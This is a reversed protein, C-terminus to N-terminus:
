GNGAAHSVLMRGLNDIRDASVGGRGLLMMHVGEHGHGVAYSLPTRGLNDRMDPNVQARGLLIGVVGEHGYGATYSLPTQGQDNPKGPDVGEWGVLMKVVEEHGNRAASALPSDGFYQGRNTDCGRIKILAVVIEVIGFFSTYYVGSISRSVTWSLLDLCRIHEVLFYTSVHGDYENLLLLALSRACDSLAQKAHVGWYLSCYELFAHSDKPSHPHGSYEHFKLATVQQSNLYTM